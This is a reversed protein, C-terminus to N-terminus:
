QRSGKKHALLKHIMEGEHKGFLLTPKPCKAEGSDHDYGNNVVNEDIEHFHPFGWSINIQSWDNKM